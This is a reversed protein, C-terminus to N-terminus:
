MAGAVLVQEALPDGFGPTQRMRPALEEVQPRVVLAGDGLLRQPEEAVQVVDLAIHL